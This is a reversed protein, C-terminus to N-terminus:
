RSPPPRLRARRNATESGAPVCAFAARALVRGEEDRAEVVWQGTERLTKSSHTRWDPGGLGLKISQVVKSEHLWAHRIAEGPKGGLVRTSFWATEGEAFREERDELRRKVIRRGVGFEPTTLHGPVVPPGDEPHTPRPAAPPEAAPEPRPERASQIPPLVKRSIEQESAVASTPGGEEAGTRFFVFYCGGAGAFLGFVLLTAVVPRNSWPAAEPIRARANPVSVVATVDGHEVPGPHEIEPTEDRGPEVPEAHPVEVLDDERGEAAGGIPVDTPEDRRTETPREAEVSPVDGEAKNRAAMRAERWRAIVAGVRRPRVPEPDSTEMCSPQRLRHERDYEDILSRSDLGLTEAYARVYLKGFARGPLAHFEDKELAELYNPHIGTAVAIEEITTDRSEREQRLREGFSPM